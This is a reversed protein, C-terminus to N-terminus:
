LRAIQLDRNKKYIKKIIYHSPIFMDHTQHYVVQRDNVTATGSVAIFRWSILPVTM